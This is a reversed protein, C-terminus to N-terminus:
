EDRVRGLFTDPWDNDGIAKACARILHWVALKPTFDPRKTLEKVRWYADLIDSPLPGFRRMHDLEERLKKVVQRQDSWRTMQQLYEHSGAIQPSLEIDANLEALKEEAQKIEAEKALLQDPTYNESM